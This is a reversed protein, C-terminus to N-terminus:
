KCFPYNQNYYDIYRIFSSFEFTSPAFAHIDFRQFGKDYQGIGLIKRTRRPLQKHRLGRDCVSNRLEFFLQVNGQKRSIVPGDFQRQLALLEQQVRLLDNVQGIRRQGFDAGNLFVGVVNSDPRGVRNVGSMQSRQNELVGPLGVVVGDFDGDSRGVVQQVLQLGVDEIDAKGIEREILRIVFAVNEALIRENQYRVIVVEFVALSNGTLLQEVDVVQHAVKGQLIDALEDSVNERLVVFKRQFDVVAGFDDGEKETLVVVGENGLIHRRLVDAVLLQAFDRQDVDLGRDDVTVNDASFLFQFLPM